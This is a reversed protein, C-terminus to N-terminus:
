RAPGKHRYVLEHASKRPAMPDEVAGLRRALTISRHNERHIYSVATTWGLDRFVFNLCARASERGIGRGEAGEWLLWGIEPEPWGAPYFPGVLGLPVAPAAKEVVTFMGFGRLTWHGIETGFWRWATEADLPGDTYQSRESTFYGVYADLDGPEPKRLILRETELRPVPATAARGGSLSRERIM